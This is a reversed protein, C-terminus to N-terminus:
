ADTAEGMNIVALHAAVCSIAGQMSFGGVAGVIGYAAHGLSDLDVTVVGSVEGAKARDLLDELHAVVNEPVIKPKEAPQTSHIYTIDAM